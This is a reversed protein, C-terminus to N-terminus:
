GNSTTDQEYENLKLGFIQLDQLNLCVGREWNCQSSPSLFQNFVVITVCLPNFILGVRDM